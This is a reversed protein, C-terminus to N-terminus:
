LTSNFIKGLSGTGFLLSKNFAIAGSYILTETSQQGLNSWTVGYDTSRLIYASDYTGAFCVGWGLYLIVNISTQSYQQGLDSWTVGYDTSRLIKGTSSTGALCIGNGLYCMSAIIIESYMQGLDTWTVGYDTSRLIKGLPATGALCIGSGLYCMSKIQVESYQQGLNSWTEGYDTSRLIKGLPATGALCIGNGLYFMVFISTETSQQGLDSWTIGYDTSRLISGSNSTGALCIGYNLFAISLIFNVVIQQGLNSWTAGYDTSRLIYASNYTGALCIGNGLYSMSKIQTQSFQQGLDTSSSYILFPDFDFNLPSNSLYFQGAIFTNKDVCSVAILINYDENNSASPWSFNFYDEFETTLDHWLVPTPDIIKILRLKQRSQLNMQRIPPTAYVLLYYNDKESFSDFLISLSDSLAFTQFAPCFLPTSYVPPGPAYAQGCALRNQNIHFFWNFGSIVKVVNWYNYKTNALAFANWLLKNSFSIVSWLNVIGSFALRFSNQKFTPNYVLTSKLRSITGSKNRQFTTGGISGKLENIEASYLVRAM